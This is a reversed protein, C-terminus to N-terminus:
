NAAPQKPESPQTSKASPQMKESIATITPATRDWLLASAIIAGILIPALVAAILALALQRWFGGAAKVERIITDEFVAKKAAEVEGSLYDRAAIDFFRAAEDRMQGFRWETIQSIWDDIEVQTPDESKQQKFLECWQQREHAFIAFTLLDIEIPTSDDAKLYEFVERDNAPM